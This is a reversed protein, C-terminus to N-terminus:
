RGLRRVLAGVLLGPVIAVLSFLAALILEFPWLNHDTPDQATEVVVRIAVAAPFAALMIWFIRSLRAIGSAALMATVAGLGVFGALVLPDSFFDANYPLRWYPVGTLLLGAVFGLTLWLNKRDIM